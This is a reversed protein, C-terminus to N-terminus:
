EYCPSWLNGRRSIKLGPAARFLPIKAIKQPGLQSIGSLFELKQGNCVVVVSMFRLFAPLAITRQTAVSLIEVNSAM